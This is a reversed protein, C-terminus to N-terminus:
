KILAQVEKFNPHKATKLLEFLAIETTSIHVGNEEMRSIGARYENESRSGCADKILHVEFGNEILAAATQHVCIHTEIGMLIIQNRGTKKLSSLLNLDFLANFSTKEYIETRDKNLNEAITNVTSGLGKPYQETVYVPLDLISATKSIIESKKEVVAKNFVANLLKEQIDIILVISDEQNLITM